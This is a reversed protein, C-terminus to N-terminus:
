NKIETIKDLTKKIKIQSWTWELFKNVRGTVECKRLLCWHARLDTKESSSKIKDDVGARTKTAGDRRWLIRWPNGTLSNESPLNGKRWGM